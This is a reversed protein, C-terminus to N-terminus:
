YSVYDHVPLCHEYVFHEVTRVSPPSRPHRLPHFFTFSLSTKCFYRVALSCIVGVTFEGGGGTTVCDLGEDMYLSSDM